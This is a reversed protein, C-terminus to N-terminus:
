YMKPIKTDPVPFDKNHFKSTFQLSFFRQTNRVYTVKGASFMWEHFSGKEILKAIVTNSNKYVSVLRIKQLALSIEAVSEQLMIFLVNKQSISWTEMGVTM